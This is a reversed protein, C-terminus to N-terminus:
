AGRLAHPQLDIPDPLESRAVEHVFAALASAARVIGVVFRLMPVPEDPVPASPGPELRALSRDGNTGM